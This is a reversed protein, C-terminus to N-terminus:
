KMVMESALWSIMCAATSPSPPSIRFRVSPPSFRSSSRPTALPAWSAWPDMSYTASLIVDGMGRNTERVGAGAALGPSRGDFAAAPHARAAGTALLTLALGLLFLVRRCARTIERAQGFLLSTAWPLISSGVGHNETM